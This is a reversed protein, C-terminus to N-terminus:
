LGGKGLNSTGLCSWILINYSRSERGLLMRQVPFGRWIVLYERIVRSRLRRERVDVIREPTLVLQGEEDLPPLDTSPPSRNDWHRRSALYMSSTTSGAVRQCSWSM